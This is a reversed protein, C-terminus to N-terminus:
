PQVAAQSEAIARKDAYCSAGWDRLRWADSLFQLQQNSRQQAQEM